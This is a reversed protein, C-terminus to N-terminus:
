HRVVDLIVELNKSTIKVEGGIPFTFMPDTHGFDLNAVVPIKVLEKKNKIIQNLLNKTIESKKQFRGILIARVKEFGSQHILSQLDRDFHVPNTEQDDELFLISNELNPFHETGQLLNLTYLNGGLTTGQAEGENIVWPGENPILNRSDQNLWWEDDSWNKSPEVRFPQDSMVCKKFYDLTHDFYLKRGFTSYAPASYNVLGTKALIANNLATIDSYGCFVKPNNKVLEWDIYKLLQNSNFGGIVAFMGKIVKTSFAWHLDEIRSEISSSLFDDVEKVHKGFVLELGLDEFRKNAIKRNQDSIIALSRSPAIIALKDGPRLKSPYITKM